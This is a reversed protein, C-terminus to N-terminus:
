GMKGGKNRNKWRMVGKKVTRSFIFKKGQKKRQNIKGRVLNQSSPLIYVGSGNWDM